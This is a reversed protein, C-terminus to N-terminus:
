DVRLKLLAALAADQQGRLSAVTPQPKGAVGNVLVAFAVLGESPHKLYGALGSVTIPESLTGSKARILGGIQERDAGKMRKKLSGEWGYSPLSALFDPFIGMDKEVHLLLRVVDDASLRNEISLGSGNEIAFGDKLGVDQKLYDRLVKAGRGLSGPQASGAAFRKTLMDGIFNNSFTNLGSVIRRMDYSPITLLNHEDGSAKGTRVRGSTAIGADKLFARLYEGALRGPNVMSRYIKQPESDVAISGSVRLVPTQGEAGIRAAALRTDSGAATTKVSSEITVGDLDVPDPRVRAPAGSKEGPSVTVALTNFNVAFASVPADYANASARAGEERSEDRTEADFLSNDVVIDGDIKSIGMARLDAAMQWLKESVLLPDGDGIAFLNGVIVAGKRQGSHVLRTAFTHAPGFKSLAAAATVLKTVSAPSVRLNADFEYIVSADSVRVFKISQRVPKNKAEFQKSLVGAFPSAAKAAADQSGGIMLCVFFILSRM